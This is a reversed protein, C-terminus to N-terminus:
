PVVDHASGCHVQIGILDYLVYSDPILGNPVIRQCWKRRTDRVYACSQVPFVRCRDKGGVSVVFVRGREFRTVSM